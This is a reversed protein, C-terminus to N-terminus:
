LKGLPCNLFGTEHPHFLLSDRFYSILLERHGQCCYQHVVVKETLAKNKAQFCRQLDSELNESDNMRWESQTWFDTKDRQSRSGEVNTDWELVKRPIPSKGPGWPGPQHRSNTNRKLGMTRDMRLITVHHRKLPGHLYCLSHIKRNKRRLGELSGHSEDGM